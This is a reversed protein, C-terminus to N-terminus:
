RRRLNFRKWRVGDDEITNYRVPEYLITHRRVIDYSNETKEKNQVLSISSLPLSARILEFLPSPYIQGNQTWFDM